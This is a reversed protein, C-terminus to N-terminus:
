AAVPLEANAEYAHRLYVSLTAYLRNHSLESVYERGRHDVRRYRNSYQVSEYVELTPLERNSPWSAIRAGMETVAETLTGTLIVNASYRDYRHVLIAETSPNTNKSMTKSM